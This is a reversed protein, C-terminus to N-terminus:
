KVEQAPVQTRPRRGEPAAGKRTVILVNRSEKVLYHKAVRQVDEKTVAAIRSPAELLDKYSGTAEAEALAGRLGTNSELQSWARIQYANKWQNLEQDTVGDKVVKALEAYLLPELEEPRRGPAPTARLTFLGGLKQGRASASASTAAKQELVLSKGLRGSVRGGGGGGRPGGGGGGSGSLIAALAQLAPADKHVAPVGKFSVQISPSTEAQALM